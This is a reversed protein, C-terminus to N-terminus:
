KPTSVRTVEAVGAKKGEGAGTVGDVGRHRPGQVTDLTTETPDTDDMNGVPGEGTGQLCPSVRFISEVGVTKMGTPLCYTTLRRRTEDRKRLLRGVDRSVVFRVCRRSELERRDEVREITM